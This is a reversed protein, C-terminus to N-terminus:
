FAIYLFTATINAEPMMPMGPVSFVSTPGRALEAAEAAETASLRMAADIFKNM